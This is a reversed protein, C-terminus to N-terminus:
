PWLSMQGKAPRRSSGSLRFAPRAQRSGLVAPGAIDALELGTAERVRDLIFRGLDRAAKVDCEALRVITWGEARMRIDRKADRVARVKHWYDGDAEIALKHRVVAFDISWRRFPYEQSFGVGLMELAVRVRAELQTEGMFQRVCAISCFRTVARGGRKRFEKGCNQCPVMLPPRRCAESCYHRNWRQRTDDAFRKGCRECNVYVTDVNKCAASCTQYRDENSLPITFDNGCVPCTKTIMRGGSRCRMSCFVISDKLVYDRTFPKGCRTCDYAYRVPEDDLRLHRPNVCRRHPDGDGPAPCDETCCAHGVERGDPIPGIFHEYAWRHAKRIKPHVFIDGYGTQPHVTSTWPWCADLGGSRDCYALFRIIPEVHAKPRFAAVRPLLSEIYHELCLGDILPGDICSPGACTSEPVDVGIWDAM